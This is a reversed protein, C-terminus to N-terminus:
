LFSYHILMCVDNKFYWNLTSIVTSCVGPEHHLAFGDILMWNEFVINIRKQSPDSWKEVYFLICAQLKDELFLEAYSLIQLM